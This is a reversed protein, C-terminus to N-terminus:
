CLEGPDGEPSGNEEWVQLCKYGGRFKLVWTLTMPKPNFAQPEPGLKAVKSAVHGQGFWKFTVPWLLLQSSSVLLGFAPILVDCVIFGFSWLHSILNSSCILHLTWVLSLFSLLFFISLYLFWCFLFFSLLDDSFPPSIQTCLMQGQSMHNMPSRLAVRCM